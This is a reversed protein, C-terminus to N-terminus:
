TAANIPSASVTGALSFAQCPSSGVLVDIPGCARARDVFDAATVDGLSAVGPLRHSLVASAFPDVEAAFATSWGLPPWACSAAEIGSFLSGFRLM